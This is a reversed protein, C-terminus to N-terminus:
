DKSLRSSDTNKEIRQTRFTKGSTFNYTFGLKVAMYTKTYTLRHYSTSTTRIKSKRQLMKELGLSVSWHKGFRKQLTPNLNLIPYVTINGIKMKSNYFCNMMLNYGKPIIFTMSVVMQIYGFTDFGGSRSLKGSALTSNSHPQSALASGYLYDAHLISQSSQQFPIASTSLKQSTLVYTLSSYLNWWKTLNIFGDGHIFMNKDKGENGWTLYLREPYEPNSTFMQRIPNATESYGAALTFRGALVFDLSVADTFSPTLHPNGVSYSYDSVQRVVPNLSWFSPRRINRYYGLAVTYKGNETLNYAVNVNPFLDFREHRAMGGSTKSYEGRVGGKFSWRGAKGAITAYLAAINEDYTMDYDIGPNPIWVGDRFYHHASQYNVENLTYKGGVNLNWKQNLVKRLSAEAVFINYRNYNDTRYLSDLRLYDQRMRNNEDVDSTQYTYNAIFKLVSGKDDLTHSWNLTANLDHFRDNSEYRGETSGVVHNELVEGMEGKSWKGDMATIDGGREMENHGLIETSSLSTCRSRNPNYDFQLGLKDSETPGYFASLLVNGQITKQKHHSVGKMSQNAVANTSEEHSTYRDSPSGNVNGNMNLTWKGSHLSLNAFPNMWQKYEGATVNVGASGNLGYIRNRKLNIRIIGGSSDASYEAGGKPIIEITVISSGQISKLYTMLQRGTMNVKRDDVYVVTGDQGYISLAEDTAWVGPATKLLEQVDKNAMLPNAAVNLVTRDAERRVLPVEVVVEDLEISPKFLISDSIALSDKLEQGSQAAQALTRLSDQLEVSFARGKASMELVGGFPILMLVMKGIAILTKRM